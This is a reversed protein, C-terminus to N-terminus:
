LAVPWMTMQAAYGMILVIAPDTKRGFIEYEIDIGNARVQPMSHGKCHDGDIDSYCQPGVRGSAAEMGHFSVEVAKGIVTEVQEDNAAANCAGADRPIRGHAPEGDRQDLLVVEGMSGAGM